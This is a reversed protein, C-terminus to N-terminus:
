DFVAPTGAGTLQRYIAVQMLAFITTGAASVIGTVFALLTAGTEGPGMELGVIVFLTGFVFSVALSILLFTIGVILLFAFIPLANSKTVAFSRQIAAFPNRVNEAVAIAGIPALRCALYIGPLIFLLLGAGVIINSLINILFYFPLFLLAAKIAEAVTPRDSAMVLVWIALQGIMQVLSVLIILPLYPQLAAVIVGLSSVDAIPPLVFSLVLGPLLFFVGAIAVLLQMERGLLQRVEDWGTSPSFRFSDSM